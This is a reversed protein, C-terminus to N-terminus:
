FVLILLGGFAALLAAGTRCGFRLVFREGPGAMATPCLLGGLAAGAAIVVLQMWANGSLIMLSAAAAALLARPADPTLSRTMGLVGHAVVAVAVLKLAHVLVGGWPALIYDSGEALAFMVLASPLTFGIVAALAGLWGARLLGLSFGLQSSTPGPLFQCLALLQGFREEELWRRREVFERRFYGVHAIPGGFSSVGLKIFAAGVEGASARRSSAAFGQESSSTSPKADPQRM